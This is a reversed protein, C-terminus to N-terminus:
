KLKYITNFQLLSLDRFTREEKKEVLKWDDNSIRQYVKVVVPYVVTTAHVDDQKDPNRMAYAFAFCDFSSFYSGCEKKFADWIFDDKPEKIM